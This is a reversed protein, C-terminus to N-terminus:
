KRKQRKVTSWDYERHCAPKHLTFTRDVTLLASCAIVHVKSIFKVCALFGPRQPKRARRTLQGERWARQVGRCDGTTTTGCLVAVPYPIVGVSDRGFVWSCVGLLSWVVHTSLTPGRVGRSAWNILSCSSPPLWTDWSGPTVAFVFGLYSVSPCVLYWCLTFGTRWTAWCLKLQVPYLNPLFMCGPNPGSCFCSGFQFAQSQTLPEAFVPYLQPAKKQDSDEGANRSLEQLKDWRKCRKKQLCECQM